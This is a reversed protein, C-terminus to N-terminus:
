AIGSKYFFDLEGKNVLHIADILEQKSVNKIVYGKAGVEISKTILMRDHFQTFFLVKVKKQKEKIIKAVELGSIDGMSIDLLVIDPTKKEVIELLEQGNNAAGILNIDTESKLLSKIGDLIIPHDDAIVLNIM